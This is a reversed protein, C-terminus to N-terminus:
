NYKKHYGTLKKGAKRYFFNLRVEVPETCAGACLAGLTM